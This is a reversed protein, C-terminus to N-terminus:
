RPELFACLLLMLSTQSLLDVKNQWLWSPWLSPGRFYQTFMPSDLFKFEQSIFCTEEAHLCRYKWKNRPKTKTKFFFSLLPFLFDQLHPYKKENVDNHNKYGPSFCSFYDLSSDVLALSFTSLSRARHLRVLLLLGPFTAGGDRALLDTLWCFFFCCKWTASQPFLCRQVSSFVPPLPNLPPSQHSPPTPITHSNRTCGRLACTGFM